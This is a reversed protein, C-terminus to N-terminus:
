VKILLHKKKEYSVLIITMEKYRLTDVFELVLFNEKKHSHLWTLLVCAIDSLLLPLPFIISEM